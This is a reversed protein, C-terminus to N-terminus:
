VDNEIETLTFDVVEFIDSKKTRRDYERCHRLAQAVGNNTPWISGREQKVWHTGCGYNRQYYLGTTNNRLMHVIM